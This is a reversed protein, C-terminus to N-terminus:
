NVIACGGTVDQHHTYIKGAAIRQELVWARCAEESLFQKTWGMVLGEGTSPWSYIAGFWLQPAPPVSRNFFNDDADLFFGTLLPLIVLLASLRKLISRSNPLRVM